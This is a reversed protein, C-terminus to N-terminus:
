APQHGGRNRVTEIEADLQAITADLDAVEAELTRITAIAQEMSSSDAAATLSCLTATEDQLSSAVTISEQLCAVDFLLMRLLESASICAICSVSAAREPKTVAPWRMPQVPETFLMGAYHQGHM